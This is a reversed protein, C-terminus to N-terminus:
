TANAEKASDLRYLMVIAVLGFALELLFYSILLWHAPGDVVLSVARGAALGLMFVVLSYLAAQTYKHKFAGLLWFVVMAFYLGMVARFIHTANTSNVSIDFLWNLSTQPALGYSLAIPSLGFAALILFKQPLTM